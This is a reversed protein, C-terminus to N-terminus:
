GCGGAEFPLSLHELACWGTCRRATLCDPCNVRILIIYDIKEVLPTKGEERILVPLGRRVSVHHIYRRVAHM